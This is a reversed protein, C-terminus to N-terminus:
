LPDGPNRSKRGQAAWRSRRKQAAQREERQKEFPTLERLIPTGDPKHGIVSRSPSKSFGKLIRSFDDKEERMLRRREAAREAAADLEAQAAEDVAVLKGEMLMAFAESVLILASDAEKTGAKAILFTAQAKTLHFETVERSAGKGTEIMAERQLLSGIAELSARHRGILNRINTLRKYGLVRALQLDQMTTEETVPLVTEPPASTIDTM